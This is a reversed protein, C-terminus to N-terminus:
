RHCVVVSIYLLQALLVWMERFIGTCDFLCNRFINELCRTLDTCKVVMNARKHALRSKGQRSVSRGCTSVKKGHKWCRQLAALLPLLKCQQAPSKYTELYMVTDQELGKLNLFLIRLCLKNSPLAILPRYICQFNIKIFSDCTLSLQPFLTIM